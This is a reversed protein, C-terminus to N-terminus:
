SVDKQSQLGPKMSIRERLVPYTADDFRSNYLHPQQRRSAILFPKQKRIRSSTSTGLFALIIIM